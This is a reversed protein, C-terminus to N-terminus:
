SRAKLQERLRIIARMIGIGPKGSRLLTYKAMTPLHYPDQRLAGRYYQLARQIDWSKYYHDGLSAYVCARIYAVESPSQCYEPLSSEFEESTIGYPWDDMLKRTIRMAYDSAINAKCFKVFERYRAAEALYRIRWRIKLGEAIIAEPTRKNLVHSINLDHLRYNVMPEALYAVNAYLSFHCWLYWDGTYPLDFPFFGAKEYCKKRAMVSPADICNAGLLKKLFKHGDIVTDEPGYGGYYRRGDLEEGGQLRVAPCYIFGVDPRSEIVSVFRELVYPRRLRDDASILWIYTGRAMAIGKNYNKLHGLNLDNRIHQV